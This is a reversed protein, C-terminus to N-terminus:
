LGLSEVANIFRQTDIAYMGSAHVGNVELIKCVGDTVAVDLVYVLEPNWGSIITSVYDSIYEGVFGNMYPEGNRRYQAQGAIQKDVIFFRYESQVIKPSAMVIMTDANVTPYLPDYQQEVIKQQYAKYDRATWIGTNFSKTDENPRCFFEDSIPELEGLTGYVADSNLM